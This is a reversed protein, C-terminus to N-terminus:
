GAEVDEAAQEAFIHGGGGAEHAGDTDDSRRSGHDVRFSGGSNSAAIDFSRLSNDVNKQLRQRLRNGVADRGGSGAGHVVEGDAADVWARALGKAIVFGDGTAHARARGFVSDGPDM